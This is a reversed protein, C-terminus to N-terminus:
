SKIWVREVANVQRWCKDDTLRKMRFEGPECLVGFSYSSAFSGPLAGSPSLTPFPFSSKKGARGVTLLKEEPVVTESCPRLEQLVECGGGQGM